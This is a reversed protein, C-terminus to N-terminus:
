KVPEIIADLNLQDCFDMFDGRISAISIDTPINIIMHLSFMTTNSNTAKYTTTTLEQISIHNNFIFDVIAHVIGEHDFSVVDIAYPMQNDAVAGPGTRKKIINLELRKELRDTLGEIKAIADWPGALMMILCIEDGLRLMRSERINCGSEKVALTLQKLLDPRNQGCATLVLCNNM